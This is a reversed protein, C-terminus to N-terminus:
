VVGLKKGGETNLRGLDYWKGDMPEFWFKLFWAQIRESIM